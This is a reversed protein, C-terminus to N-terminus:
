KRVYVGDFRVNMGGCNSNDSVVLYHSVLRATVKCTDDTFDAQTGHPKATASFAGDNEQSKDVGQWVATGDAKLSNGDVLIKIEDDGYKWTGSWDNLSQPPSANAAALDSDQIWGASGGSKNPFYACVYSDMRKGVLVAQRPLVYGDKCSSKQPCGEFSGGDWHFYTRPATKAARVVIPSPDSPFLGNRCWHADNSDLASASATTALLAVFAIPSKM